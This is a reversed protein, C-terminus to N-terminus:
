YSFYLYKEYLYFLCRYIIGLIERRFLKRLNVLNFSTVDHLHRNLLFIDDQNM